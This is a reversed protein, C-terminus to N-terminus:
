VPVAGVESRLVQWSADWDPEGPLEIAMGCLRPTAEKVWRATAADLAMTVVLLPEGAENLWVLAVMKSRSGDPDKPGLWRSRTGVLSHWRRSTPEVREGFPPPGGYQPDAETWNVSYITYGWAEGTTPVTFVQMHTDALWRTFGPEPNAGIHVVGHNPNRTLYWRHHPEGGPPPATPTPTHMTAASMTSVEVLTPPAPIPETAPEPTPEPEPGQQPAPEIGTPAPAVPVREPAPPQELHEGGTSPPAEDHEAPLASRVADGPDREPPSADYSPHPAFRM